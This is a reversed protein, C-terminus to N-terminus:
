WASLLPPGSRDPPLNNALEYSGPQSITQCQTIKIPGERSDRAQAGGRPALIIAGLALVIPFLAALRRM